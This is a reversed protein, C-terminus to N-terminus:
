KGLAAKKILAMVALEKDILNRRRATSGGNRLVAKEFTGYDDGTFYLV